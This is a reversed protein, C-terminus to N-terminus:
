FLRRWSRVRINGRSQDKDGGYIVTGNKAANGPLGLWWGMTKAFSDDFTEAFKIEVPWQYSGHDVLIDIERDKNDRWFYLPPEEGGNAYAKMLESVIFTEFIQGKLPHFSLQQENTVRLLYCLLGSDLFYLKPSKVLRKSHNVFYPPILKVLGSLELISLWARVTPVSVGCGNSIDTLNTIQASRAAALRVFTDFQKISHVSTIQRVDREVYTAYYSSLWATPNASRSHIAPYMGRYLVKEISQSKPVIGGDSASPNDLPSRPLDYLESLSLPLLTVVAVRGALSQSIGQALQFQHSGTLIFQGMKGLQDLHTQLYSLLDPCRQVEDLIVKGSYQRLFGRPDSQAFSRM